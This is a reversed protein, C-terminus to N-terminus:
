RDAHEHAEPKKSSKTGERDERESTLTTEAPKTAPNAM